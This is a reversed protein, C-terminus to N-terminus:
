GRFLEKMGVHQQNTEYDEETDYELNRLIDEGFSMTLNVEVEDKNKLIEVLLKEMFTKRMDITESCKVVHDWKEVSECRPCYAEVMNDNIMSDRLGFHNFGHACKM